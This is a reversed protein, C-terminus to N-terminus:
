NVTPKPNPDTRRKLDTDARTNDIDAAKSLNDLKQKHPDEDEGGEGMDHYIKQTEAHVKGQQTGKLAADAAEKQSKAATAQQQLMTAVQQWQQAQQTATQLQQNTQMLQQQMGQLQQETTQLQGLEEDMERSYKAYPQLASKLIASALGAPMDGSQVLPFVTSSYAGVAELMNQRARMEAHEDKAITSDSEIDVVFQMLLDDRLIKLTSEPIEMQTMRSLNQDTFHSSLIQAMIRFMERVTYQVLDRKKTLRLGVWRGKIEQATATEAAQTVGRVIDAIGLIEDVQAKVYTIQSTLEAIVRLKEELPPFLMINDLTGNALRALLKDVPKSEGDEMEFLEALEPMSKDHMSVAKLQELLSMRREQLRNIEVDYQEIFDYDAQPELKDNKINTMMPRPGPYFGSLKLPDEIVEIPESEGKAVMLVERKKRDWLEYIDVTGRKWADDSKGKAKEAQSGRIRRGFREICDEQTM